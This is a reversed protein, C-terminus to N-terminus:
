ASLEEDVVIELVNEIVLLGVPLVVGFDDFCVVFELCIGLTFDKLKQDLL